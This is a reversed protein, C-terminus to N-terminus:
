ARDGEFGDMETLIQNLTQEREDNGGSFGAPAGARAGSRTSSTSSSSRPRRGGQGAQVPRARTLRRRRRDGRRVGVRVLQLVARGGRRRRRAGAADQRHGAARLAARRAPDARRPATASRASSSTSSRPSSTRPRTSAPSTTSPSGRRAAAGCLRARSRGFAGLGGAGGMSSARRMLWILGGIILITPGFALLFTLLPNRGTVPPKANLVVGKSQLDETLQDTNVFTPVQTKFHDVEATKKAGEAKYETAKKLTGDITEGKSSIEKVNGQDIQQLFFPSYPVQTARDPRGTVLAFIVNVALLALFIMLLTRRGQRPVM